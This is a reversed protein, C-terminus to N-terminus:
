CFSRGPSYTRIWGRARFAAIAKDAVREARKKAYVGFEELVAEVIEKRVIDLNPM